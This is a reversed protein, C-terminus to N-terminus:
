YALLWGAAMALLAITVGVTWLGIKEGFECLWVRWRPLRECYPSLCAPYLMPPYYSIVDTAYQFFRVIANM